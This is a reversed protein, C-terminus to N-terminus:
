DWPVSSNTTMQIAKTIDSLLFPDNEIALATLLISEKM